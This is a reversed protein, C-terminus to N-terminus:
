WCCGGMHHGWRGMHHGGMMMGWGHWGYPGGWGFGRRKAYGCQYWGAGKWGDDYWCYSQGGWMHAAEIINLGDLVARTGDPLGVPAAQASGILSMGGIIASAILPTAFKCM